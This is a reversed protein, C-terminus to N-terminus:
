GTGTLKDSLWGGKQRKNLARLEMVARQRSIRENELDRYIRDAKKRRRLADSVDMFQEVTDLVRHLLGRRRATTTQLSERVKDLSRNLKEAIADLEAQFDERQATPSRRAQELTDRLHEECLQGYGPMGALADLGMQAIRPDRDLLMECATRCADWAQWRYAFDLGTGKINQIGMVRNRYGPPTEHCIRHVIQEGTASHNEMVVIKRWFWQGLLARFRVNLDQSRSETVENIKQAMERYERWGRLLWEVHSRIARVLSEDLELSTLAESLKEPEHWLAALGQGDLKGNEEPSHEQVAHLMVELANRIHAEETPQRFRKAMNQLMAQAASRDLTDADPWLSVGRAYEEWAERIFGQLGKLNTGILFHRDARIDNVL